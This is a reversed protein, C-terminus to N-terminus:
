EKGAPRRKKRRRGFRKKDSRSPKKGSGSEAQGAGAQRQADRGGRMVQQREAETLKGHRRPQNADYVETSELARYLEEDSMSSRRSPQGGMGGTLPTRPTINMKPMPYPNTPRASPTREASRTDTSYGERFGSPTDADRYAGGRRDNRYASASGSRGSGGDGSGGAERGSNRGGSNRGGSFRSEQQAPSRRGTSSWASLEEDSIRAPGRPVPVKEEKGTVDTLEKATMGVGATRMTNLKGRISEKKKKRNKKRHRRRRIVLLIILLLVLGAITYVIPLDEDAIGIKSLPGGEAVATLAYLDDRGVLRGKSNFVLAEGMKQGEAVPANLKDEDLRFETTFAQQDATGKEITVGLDRRIGVDVKRKEGGWVRRVGAVEGNKMVKYTEYKGFAYEWLVMGDQFRSASDPCNLTVVIFETGKRKADGVYCFGASTTFGTKVGKCGKYKFPVQKGNVEITQEDNWLCANSNILTRKESKNTAPVVHKVTRVVKRYLPNNMGERTILALDRATTYNLRDADENLGNPNRFVSNKAGCEEARENMMDAFKDIDGDAMALGLVQAADNGSELMMGYLLHEVSIKEGPELWMTSGSTEVDEPVTVVQDLDLREVALLLTLVKTVSAPESTLDANKEYLVTGTDADMIIASKGHITPADSQDITIAPLVVSGGAPAEAEEAWAFSPVAGTLLLATIVIAGIFNSLRKTM